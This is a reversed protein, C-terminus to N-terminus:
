KKPRKQEKKAAKKEKPVSAQKQETKAEAPLSDAKAAAEAAQAEKAAFYLTGMDRVLNLLCNPCGPKYPYPHGTLSQWVDLMKAIAAKGPYSCWAAKTAQTFIREYGELAQVQDATLTNRM